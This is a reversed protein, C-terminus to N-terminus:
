LVSCVFLGASHDSTHLRTDCDVAIQFDVRGEKAAVIVEEPLGFLRLLLDLRAELTATKSAGRIATRPAGLLIGM